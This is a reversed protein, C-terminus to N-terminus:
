KEAAYGLWFLFLVFAAAIMMGQAVYIHVYHFYSKAYIGTLGLGAIRFVNLVQLLFFGGIIGVVKQKIIAPFSLIGVMYILFAELGNCGFKVDLSIGKLSIVSGEVGQLIGFPKLVLQTFYVIMGTYLGNIDLLRKIPEFGILFVFVGMLLVYTVVFRRLRLDKKIPMSGKAM